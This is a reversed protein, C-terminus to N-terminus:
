ADPLTWCIPNKKVNSFDRLAQGNLADEIKQLLGTQEGPKLTWIYVCFRDWPVEWDPECPVDPPCDEHMFSYFVKEFTTCTKDANSDTEWDSDRPEEGKPLCICEKKIKGKIGGCDSCEIIFFGVGPAPVPVLNPGVNWWYPFSCTFTIKRWCDTLNSPTGFRDYDSSM